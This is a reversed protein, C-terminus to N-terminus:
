YVNANRKVMRHRSDATGERREATQHRAGEIAPSTSLRRVEAEETAPPAPPAPPARRVVVVVVVM